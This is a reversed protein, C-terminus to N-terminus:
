ILYFYLSRISFLNMPSGSTLDMAQVNFARDQLQVGFILIM